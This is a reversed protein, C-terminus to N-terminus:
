WEVEAVIVHKLDDTFKIAIATYYSTDFIRSWGPLIRSNEPLKDFEYVDWWQGRYEFFRPFHDKRGEFNEDIFKKPFESASLLKKKRNDTTIAISKEM